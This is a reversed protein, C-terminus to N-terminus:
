GNEPHCISGALSDFYDRDQRKSLIFNFRENPPQGPFLYSEIKAWGRDLDPDVIFISCTPFSDYFTYIIRDGYKIKLKDLATTLADIDNKTRESSVNGIQKILDVCPSNPNHISFFVRLKKNTKFAAEINHLLGATMSITFSIGKILVVEQADKFVNFIRRNAPVEDRRLYAEDVPLSIAKKFTSVFGTLLEKQLLSKFLIELIGVAVCSTGANSLFNKLYPIIEIFKIESVLILLLGIITVFSGLFRHIIKTRDM